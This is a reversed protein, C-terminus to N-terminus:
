SNMRKRVEVGDLRRHRDALHHVDDQVVIGGVLVRLDQSPQLLVRTPDEL